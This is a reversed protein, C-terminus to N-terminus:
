CSKCTVRYSKSYGNSGPGETCTFRLNRSYLGFVENIFEIRYIKYIRDVM